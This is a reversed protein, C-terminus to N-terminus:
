AAERSIYITSNQNSRNTQGIVLSEASILAFGQRATSIQRTSWVVFSASELSMILALSEELKQSANTQAISKTTLKLQSHLAVSKAFLKSLSGTRGLEKEMNEIGSLGKKQDTGNPLLTGLTMSEIELSMGKLKQCSNATTSKISKAGAYNSIQYKIIQLTEMKTICKMGMLYIETPTKGCKGIFIPQAKRSTHGLIHDILSMNQIQTDTISRAMIFLQKEKWTKYKLVVYRMSDLYNTCEISFLM